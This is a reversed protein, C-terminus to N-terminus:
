PMHKIIAGLWCAQTVAHVRSCQFKYLILAQIVSYYCPPYAYYYACCYVSVFLDQEYRAYVEPKNLAAPQPRKKKYVPIRSDTELFAYM